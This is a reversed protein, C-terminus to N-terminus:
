ITVLESYSRKSVYYHAGNDYLLDAAEMNLSTSYIIVPLRNLKPDSKIEALCESGNKRPMNMDMFLVDPLKGSNKKLYAILKEGDEVVTLQTSFPLEQLAKFFFFRDDKDDDALLINVPQSERHKM